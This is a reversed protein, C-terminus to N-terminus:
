PRPSLYEDDIRPGRGALDRGLTYARSVIERLDARRDVVRAFARYGLGLDGSFVAPRSDYYSGWGDAMGPPLREARADGLRVLPLGMRGFANRLRPVGTFVVKSFGAGTLFANITCILWRAQGAGAPSLNGIEVIRAREIGLVSEIPADLYHELFLAQRGAGRVGAVAAYEGPTRRIGLLLPYFSSLRAGYSRAFTARVFDEADRREPHAADILVPTVSGADALCRGLLPVTHPPVEILQTNLVSDDRGPPLV